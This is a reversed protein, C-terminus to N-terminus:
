GHNILGGIVAPFDAAGFKPVLQSKGVASPFRTIQGTRPDDRAPLAEERNFAEQPISQIGLYPIGEAALCGRILHRGDEIEALLGLGPLLGTATVFPFLFPPLLVM